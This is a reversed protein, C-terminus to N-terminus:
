EIDDLFPDDSGMEADKVLYERRQLYADRMFEYKEGTVFTEMGQYRTRADIVSLAFMRNKDDNDQIYTIPNTYRDAFRGVGDRVSSPGFVPLVLYPGSGVGWAGLTQGFDEQYKPMGGDTAVDFLGGIGITSNMAFRGTSQLAEKPKGQLVQNIIVTPTYLNDFFNRVGKEAFDPTVFQYGKVIPSIIATDLMHNFAFIKRNMGELPDSGAHASFSFATSLVSLALISKKM